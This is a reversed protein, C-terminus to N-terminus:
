HGGCFDVGKLSKTQKQPKQNIIVHICGNLFFDHFFPINQTYKLYIKSYM